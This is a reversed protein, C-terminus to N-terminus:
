SYHQTFSQHFEKVKDLVIKLKDTPPLITMRFHYTGDMQGFGSGPVLCIGTEELLKMCYFMDPAQGMERAETVAREPLSIRPFCYMAGQVPNCTIGPIRNFAEQALKAKTALDRLNTAREEIFTSYSPEDRQPPNVVLDLLAQGPVPPCLRVSVMKTLQAKVEPDMNIVEMYGGRFGCEGMYCKSTSHFSVLEVIDSYEPGMEYLVKKFSHFQCDEAYVNDQYVEDAMLFLHEEAAFRIVDEICQRSQVQGTPNGPNIVCLARPSCHQRAALLSRRLESVDLAWCRDEDLYYSVQVAGLDALAASYLPYQPIPIMVGTRTRGEGSVLLKLIAVIGDSAGTCLYINDPNCTIGGDRREIYRAVDQRVCEIGQSASYAGISGGNCAQLIRRARNKADEPFKDDELLKSYSCLAVVQRFFTIPRQGMAHADGINARIVESFPKKVGEKLENEIQVARQVIPGRVAYEVKKVNPNMTDTTLVKGRQCVVGNETM